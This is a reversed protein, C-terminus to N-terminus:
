VAGRQSFRRADLVRVSLFLCAVIFSLFFFVASPSFNGIRFTEYRNYLSLFNLTNRLWEVSLNSALLDLMWLLFNAAFAFLAGILQSRAFCTVLFDVALFSLSQLTFGLYGVM